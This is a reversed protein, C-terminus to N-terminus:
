VEHSAALQRELRLAEGQTRGIWVSGLEDVRGDTIREGLKGLPQGPRAVHRRNVFCALVQGVRQGREVRTLIAAEEDPVALVVRVDPGDSEM